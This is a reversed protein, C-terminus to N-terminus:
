NTWRLLPKVKHGNYLYGNFYKYNKEGFSSYSM